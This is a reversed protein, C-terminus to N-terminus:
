DDDWERDRDHDFGAVGPNLIIEYTNNDGHQQTYFVRWRGNFPHPNKAGLIGGPTPDGDSVHIGTIENDGDNTFGASGALSSDITASADRGQALIRVPQNAPNSYDRNADFLWASDLANHQTHLTDGRDEVVIVHDKTLFAINDFSTHDIDSLYFLTLTGRDDAPHLQSVKFVGGFGGGASGVQTLANTDGTETFFFERFNTGPRFVGNEPRKFPTGVGKALANADFPTSGDVATDHITIWSTDFRKGYTHLDKVDQSTIDIDPTANNFVITGAHALSKVALVQLKGGAKLDQKDYPVFRYIFSNPQRAQPNQAGSRGGVDEVIWVNGFSDPQIGEYGGRGFVGSVDEVQSPFDLTAQWVGGNAGAEFTFLLRRAFPDWTSGDFTPIRNGAVDHSALLTVRHLDDADLNIRSIFGVGRAGNEHGQFLFHRGYDYGPDAGHQGRLVLYTNKDPETKTAEVNHTASQVDGPAPLMPGNGNYGYHTLDVTTGDALTVRAPNELPTSGQAV